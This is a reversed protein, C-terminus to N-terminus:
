ILYKIRGKRRRFKIVEGKRPGTDDVEVFRRVWRRMLHDSPKPPYQSDFFCTVASGEVRLHCATQNDTNVSRRTQNFRLLACTPM